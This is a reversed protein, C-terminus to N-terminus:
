RVLGLQEKDAGFERQFALYDLNSLRRFEEIKLKDELETGQDKRLFELDIMDTESKRKEATANAHAAKADIYGLNHMVEQMRYKYFEAEAATKQTEQQLKHIKAELEAVQLEAVKQEMPDPEPEYERLAKAQTPMNMLELIESMIHRRVAPDENPGLTQMLFSLNRVKGAQEAQTTITIGIDINGELDDRRITVFEEETVRVVEEEELFEMDYALWKRLLPEVLNIAINRIINSRRTTAADSPEQEGVTGINNGAADEFGRVGTLNAIDSDMLTLMNFASTPLNNYSGQWFDNISGNFEFNKGALFRKKNAQDLSNKRIGVQGNNSKAMNDLFGRVIATKVQQNPGIVEANSEGQIRFPISTFPVVIFPPKKDPYPNSQLRIIVDGVWTCVIPEAIGDGDIDYNGWYEHVLLKKRAADKFRFESTDPSDYDADDTDSCNKAVQKLNKYRGDKRLTSLDTEYRYIIFQAEDINDQCTPDIFVDEFRCVKATPKNKIIEIDTVEQMIVQQNGFEDIVLAEIQKTVEKEEYDWGTQIVVTGDRDLVKIAKSMFNYRPFQRCFQTNLLVEAQRAAPFDEYTIPSCTIINDTSIFPELLSAHQWESQKKIDRSVIKSKGNQENGYPEGNYERRWQAVKDMMELNSTKAASLDAKFAELLKGKDLKM